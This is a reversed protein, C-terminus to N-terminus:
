MLTCSCGPAHPLDAGGGAEFDDLEILIQEFSPRTAIRRSWCRQVLDTFKPGWAGMCRPHNVNPRVGKNVVLDMFRERNIGSYPREQTTMEWVMVAWTYVESKENYQECNAVEPAMYRLSGTRGTLDILIESDTTSQSDNDDSREHAAKERKMHPVDMPAISLANARDIVSVLGFDVLVLEESLGRSTGGHAGSEASGDAPRFMVNDPKLDRHIVTHGPVAHRHLYDFTTALQKAFSFAKPWPLRSKRGYLRHTLTDDLKEMVMFPIGENHGEAVIKVVGPTKGGLVSLMAKECDFDVQSQESNIFKPKLVKLAAPTGEWSAMFVDAFEGSGVHGKIELESPWSEIPALQDRARREVSPISSLINSVRKSPSAAM